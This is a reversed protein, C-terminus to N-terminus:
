TGGAVALVDVAVAGNAGIIVPNLDLEILREAALGLDAVHRAMTVLSQKDLVPAGRWGDLLPALRLTSIMEVIDQEDVPLPRTAVDRLLEAYIGGFGVTLCPGCQRDRSLGLIMEVGGCVLEQVQVGDIRAGAKLLIARDLLEQSATAVDCM